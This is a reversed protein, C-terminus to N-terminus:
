KEREIKICEDCLPKKDLEGFWLSENYSAKKNCNGCVDNKININDLYDCVRNYIDVNVAGKGYLREFEQRCHYLLTIQQDVDILKM